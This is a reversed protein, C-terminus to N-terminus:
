ERKMKVYRKWEKDVLFGHREFVPKDKILTVSYLAYKESFDAIIKDLLLSLIDEQDPIVYYNNILAHNSRMELPVFGLVQKADVAVLWQFRESTKFPYNNNARIVDPNMVLPAVWYYLHPDDGKFHLIQIM